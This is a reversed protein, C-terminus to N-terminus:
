REIVIKTRRDLMPLLRRMTAPDIAICGETPKFGAKAQHFFIASGLGRIHKSINYDLVICVDYLRDERLMQEHSAPYPLQIERNYNRDVSADCWGMNSRIPKMALGTSMKKIRDSRFYGYLLPFTGIPTAGDGERKLATTGSRGLACPFTTNNFCLLGQRPDGPKRRVRITKGFSQIASPLTRSKKVM